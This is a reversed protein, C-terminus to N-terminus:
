YFLVHLTTLYVKNKLFKTLSKNCSVIISIQKGHNNQPKRSHFVKITVVCNCSMQTQM